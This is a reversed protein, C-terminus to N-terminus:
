SGARLASLAASLDPPLPAEFTLREGSRPHDFSLREAHLALRVRGGPLPVHARTGYLHDGAVPLGRATLHVRIQHRRGTRITCALLAHQGFQELVEVETTADKGDADDVMQRDAKGPVPGLPADVTFNQEPRGTVLALYRKGVTHARFQDQLVKLTEENRAFVLVGSTDRDLRHVVGPRDVGRSTPLPGHTAELHGALDVVKSRDAAHTLWGAPKVVVLFDEEEHLIAVQPEAESRERGVELVAGKAVKGNSRLVKRGNLKVRGRRVLKQLQAKSLDGHLQDLVRDLRQGALAAPVEIRDYEPQM